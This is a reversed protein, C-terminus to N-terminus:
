IAARAEEASQDFQTELHQRWKQQMKHCQCSAQELAHKDAVEILGRRYSIIGAEQLSKAMLTITTRRLGLLMSLGQHTMAIPQGDQWRHLDLLCQCFRSEIDHKVHCALAQQSCALVFDAYRMFFAAICNNRELLQRWGAIPIRIVSTDLQAIVKHSCAGAGIPPTAHVAGDRGVRLTNVDDGDELAWALSLVGHLPFYAFAIAEGAQQLLAGKDFEVRAGTALLPALEGGHHLAITDLITNGTKAFSM